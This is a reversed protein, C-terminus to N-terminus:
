LDQLLSRCKQPCGKLNGVMQVAGVVCIAIFFCSIMVKAASTMKGVVCADDRVKPAIFQSSHVIEEESVCVSM